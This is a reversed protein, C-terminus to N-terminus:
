QANARIYDARAKLEEYTKGFVEVQMRYNGYDMGCETAERSWDAFTKKKPLSQAARALATVTADNARKQANRRINQERTQRRNAEFACEDSCYRRVSWTTKFVRGCIPCTKPVATNAKKQAARMKDKWMKQRQKHGEDACDDSCYIKHAHATQFEAGCIPCRRSILHGADTRNM